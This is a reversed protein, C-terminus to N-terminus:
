LHPKKCPRSLTPTPSLGLKMWGEHGEQGDGLRGYHNAAGKYGHHKDEWGDEAQVQPPAVALAEIHEAAEGPVAQM